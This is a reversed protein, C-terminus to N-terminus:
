ELKSDTIVEIRSMLHTSYFFDGITGSMDIAKEDDHVISLLAASVSVRSRSCPQCAAKNGVPKRAHGIDESICKALL